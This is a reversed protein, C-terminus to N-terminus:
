MELLIGRGPKEEVFDGNWGGEGGEGKGRQPHKKVWEGV